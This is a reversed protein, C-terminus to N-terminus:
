HLPSSNLETRQEEKMKKQNGSGLSEDPEDGGMCPPKLSWVADELLM